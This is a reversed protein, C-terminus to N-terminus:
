RRHRRGDGSFILMHLRKSARVRSPRIASGGPNALTRPITQVTAVIVGVRAALWDALGLMCVGNPNEFGAAAEAARIAHASSLYDRGDALVGMSLDEHGDVIVLNNTV